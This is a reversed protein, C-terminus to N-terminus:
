GNSNLDASRWRSLGRVVIDLGGRFEDDPSLHQAHRATESLLPYVSAPLEALLATGAGPLPGLHQAQLAGIIYSVLTRLAVARLKGRFGGETLALLFIEACRMVSQSSHRHSILLPVAEPHAGAEARIREALVKLQKEWTARAPMTVNVSGLVADVVLGELEHRDRVYRYLSMTGVGLEGAVARMSLATLGDRDIM